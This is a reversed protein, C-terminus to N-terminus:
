GGVLNEYSGLNGCTIRARDHGSLEFHKKAVPHSTLPKPEPQLIPIEIVFETGQGAKSYCQLQGDHKEVVIKYSISLGLGSGKGVPKTTFFPDFIRSRIHEPIGSGNDIIRIAIAKHPLVETSITITPVYQLTSESPLTNYHAELSEIASREDLAEIANNLVNMFVQNLQGAYCEVMPLNNYERVIEIGPQGAKPKLRNGLIVLTNDIGKHLDVAKMEAEDLRSFNRLSLVIERIRETGSQMSNLLKPLDQRLFELDIEEIFAQTAPNPVPIQAHYLDILKLLDYAYQAAPNLNGHIFSIPNNIEHAIGAVLQGLGSMKEAQIMQTQTHRLAAEMRERDIEARKRDSIDHMAVVAGLKNGATDFFARGSTLLTRTKGLKPVIVMETEHVIEGQFARVLPTDQPQMPTKGDDLYLDFHDAWQETPMPVEPLGYFDCTARNVLMLDGKEDCAVIGETLHDLIAKLFGREKELHTQVQQLTAESRKHEAIEQM